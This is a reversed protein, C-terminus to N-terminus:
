PTAHLDDLAREVLARDADSAQVVARGRWRRFALAVGVLAAVLAAVPLVWVLGALGSRQPTLLISDGYSDALEDRIQDDTAGAAIRQTIQTRIYRSASADSDAVSQGSCTPCQITEALRHAREAPTSAARDDTVGVLLAVAVVAALALWGLRRATV